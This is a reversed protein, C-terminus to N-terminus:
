CAGSTRRWRRKMTPWLWRRRRCEIVGANNILVDIAGFRQHVRELLQNVSHPQTVDCPVALVDAGILSLSHSARELSSPDRGCIALRAGQAAAERALALGLGRSGGTILLTKNWLTYSRLRLQRAAWFATMGAALLLRNRDSRRRYKGPLAATAEAIMPALSTAAAASKAPHLSGSAKPTSIRM